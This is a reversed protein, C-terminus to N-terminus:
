TFIATPDSPWARPRHLVASLPPNSSIGPLPMSDFFRAPTLAPLTSTATPDLWCMSTTTWRVPRASPKCSRGPSRMTASSLTTPVAASWFITLWTPAAPITPPRPSTTPLGSIRTLTIWVRRTASSPRSTAMAGTQDVSAPDGIITEIDGDGWNIIWGDVAQNSNLTLTYTEGDRATADGTTTLVLPSEDVGTITITVTDTATAANSDTATITFTLTITEGTALFELDADTVSYSWATSGPAASNTVSASFGAELQTALGPDIPGGSWVASTTVATSIDIVDNTDLDDFNITGSADLDQATANIAEIFGIDATDSITPDDNTGTVTITITQEASPLGNNDLATYTFAVDRSAGLDLDDFDTGPDFSYSGDPNFLLSGEGVNTGGLAYSAITGDIDTAVPVNGNLVTNETTDVADDTAVPADNVGTITITVTATSDAGSSGKASYTFSDDTTQGVDLTEFAGNTDYIFSGDTNLTLLAGSGLTIETNLDPVSGNVRTVNVADIDNGMVGPAPVNLVSDEDINYADDVATAEPLTSSYQQQLESSVVISSEVKGARYELLWDGGQNEAGTLDDSAAVDTLTLAGLENVLSQGAESSALDCGYILLDGSETFANAWLAISSSNQQLSDADLISNGLQISGDSGHSIIHVADIDQYQQLLASIQEIGDKDRDLVVVEIDRDTDTNNKVDDVFQQYNEVGADVIVIERSGQEAAAVDIAANGGDDNLSKHANLDRLIPGTLYEPGSPALGEIGGSFLRRPELEELILRPQQQSQKIAKRMQKIARSM